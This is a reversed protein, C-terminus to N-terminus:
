DAALYGTLHPLGFVEGLESFLTGALLLFGVAGLTAIGGSFHPVIHTSEFLLAFVVALAAAYLARQLPSKKETAHGSM